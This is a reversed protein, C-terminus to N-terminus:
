KEEVNKIIARAIKQYSRRVSTKLLDYAGISVQQRV